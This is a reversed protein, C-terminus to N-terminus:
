PIAVERVEAIDTRRAIWPPLLARAGAEDVADLTWWLRHDGMACAGLASAHRLPSAFGKWAAFAVGCEEPEHRHSLIFRRM